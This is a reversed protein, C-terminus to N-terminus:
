PRMGSRPNWIIRPNNLGDWAGYGVLGATSVGILTLTLKTDFSKPGALMLALWGADVVLSRKFWRSAGDSFGERSSLQTGVQFLSVGARPVRLEGGSALSLQVSDTTIARVTGTVWDRSREGQLRVRLPTGQPQDLSVALVPQASAIAPVLLTLIVALKATHM